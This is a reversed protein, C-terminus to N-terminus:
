RRFKIEMDGTVLAIVVTIVVATVIPLLLGLLVQMLWISRELKALRKDHDASDAELKTVRTCWAGFHEKGVVSNSLADIRKQLDAFRETMWDRLSISTDDTM